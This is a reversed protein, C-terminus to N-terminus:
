PVWYGLPLGNPPGCVRLREDTGESRRQQENMESRCGGCGLGFAGAKAGRRLTAELVSPPERSGPGVVRGVRPNSNEGTARVHVTADM